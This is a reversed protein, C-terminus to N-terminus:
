FEGQLSNTLPTKKQCCINNRQIKAFILLNNRQIKALFPSKNRQIIKNKNIVFQSVIIKPM